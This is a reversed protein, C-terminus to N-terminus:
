ATRNSAVPRLIEPAGSAAPSERIGNGFDPSRSSRNQRKGASLFQCNSVSSKRKKESRPLKLIPLIILLIDTKQRHSKFFSILSIIIKGIFFYMWLNEFLFMPIETLFTKIATGM